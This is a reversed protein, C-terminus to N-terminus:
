ANGHGNCITDILPTLHVTCMPFAGLQFLYTKNNGVKLRRKEKKQKQGVEPGGPGGPGGRTGPTNKM